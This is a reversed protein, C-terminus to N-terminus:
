RNPRKAEKDAGEESQGEALPELLEASLAVRDHMGDVLPHLERRLITDESDKLNNMEEDARLLPNAEAALVKITLRVERRVDGVVESQTLHCALDAVQDVQQFGGLDKSVEIERLLLSAVVARSTFILAGGSHLEGLKAWVSWCRGGYEAGQTSLDM